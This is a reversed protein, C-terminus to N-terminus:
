LGELSLRLQDLAITSCRHHHRKVFFALSVGVLAFNFNAFAGIAHQHVLHVERGFVNNKIRINKGNGGANFLVVVVGDVENFGRTPDFLIQWAGFHRTTHGIHREAEAAIIGTRSAM